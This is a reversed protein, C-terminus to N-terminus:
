VRTLTCVCLSPRTMCLACGCPSQVPVEIKQRSAVLTAVKVMVESGVAARGSVAAVMSWGCDRFDVKRVVTRKVRCVSEGILFSNYDVTKRLASCRKACCTINENRGALVVKHGLADWLVAVHALHAAAGVVAHAPILCALWGKEECM